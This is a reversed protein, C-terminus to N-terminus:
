PGWVGNTFSYWLVCVALVGIILAMGGFKAHFEENMRSGHLFSNQPNDPQYAIRVPGESLSEFYRKSVQVRNTYQSGFSDRFSYTVYYFTGEDKEIDKKILRGDTVTGDQLKQFEFQDRIRLWAFILVMSGGILPFMLKSLDGTM